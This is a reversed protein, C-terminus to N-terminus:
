NAKLIRQLDKEFNPLLLLDKKETIQEKNCQKLESIIVGTQSDESLKVEFSNMDSDLFLRQAIPILLQQRDIELHAMTYITEAIPKAEISQTLKLQLKMLEREFFRYLEIITSTKIVELKPLEIKNNILSASSEGKLVQSAEFWMGVKEARKLLLKPILVRRLLDKKLEFLKLELEDQWNEEDSDLYLLAEQKTM